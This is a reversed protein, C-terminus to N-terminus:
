LFSTSVADDVHVLISFNFFYFALKRRILLFCPSICDTNNSNFFPLWSNLFNCLRTHHYSFIFIPSSLFFNEVLFRHISTDFSIQLLNMSPSSIQVSKTNSCINLIEFANNLCIRVSIATNRGPTHTLVLSIPFPLSPLVSM